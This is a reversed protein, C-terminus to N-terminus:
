RLGSDASGVISRPRTTMESDRTELVCDRGWACAQRQAICSSPTTARAPTIGRTPDVKAEEQSGFVCEVTTDVDLHVQKPDLDHVSALGQDVMMSELDILARADFRCIDRYVTDISPVVGGALRVFLPDAALSELGFVRAEGAVNADLLLRLQAEMPYVVMPSTKLRHFKRALQEDIGKRRCFVGFSALGAAGTLSADPRGTQIRTPDARRIRQHRRHGDGHKGGRADRRVKHISTAHTTGTRM